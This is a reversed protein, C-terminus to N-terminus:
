EDSLRLLLEEFSPTVVYMNNYTAPEGEGAEGEHDWYYIAGYQQTDTVLCLLNGGPDRAIPLVGKPIRDRYTNIKDYINNPSGPQIGFFWDIVGRTDAYFGHIPFYAPEPYGGNYTLLFHRYAPPLVIGQSQEFAILQIETITPQAEHIAPM